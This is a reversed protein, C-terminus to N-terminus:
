QRHFTTDRKCITTTTMAEELRGTCTFNEKKRGGSSLPSVHRNNMLERPGFSSGRRSFTRKFVACTDARVNLGHNMDIAGGRTAPTTVVSFGSLLSNSPTRHSTRLVSLGRPLTRGAHARFALVRFRTQGRESIGSEPVLFPNKRRNKLSAVGSATAALQSRRLVLPSFLFSLPLLSLSLLKM